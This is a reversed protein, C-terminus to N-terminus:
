FRRTFGIGAGYETWSFADQKALARAAKLEVYPTFGNGIILRTNEAKLSVGVATHDAAGPTTREIDLREVWLSPSLAIGRGADFTGFGTLRMRRYDDVPSDAERNEALLSAGLSLRPTVPRAVTLSARTVHGDRADEDLNDIEHWSGSLKVSMGDPKRTLLTARAGLRDEFASGRLFRRSLSPALTLAARPWILRLGPSTTLTLDDLESGPGDKGDVTVNALALTRVKEGSLSAIEESLGASLNFTLGPATRNSRNLTFPLEQGGISISTTNSDYNRTNGLMAFGIDARWEFGRRAEIAYLFREINSLVPDPIDGSLVSLFESRARGWQESMFYARALELRVRALDPNRALIASFLTAAERPQGSELLQLGREFAEQTTLRQVPQRASMQDAPQQAAQQAITLPVALYTCLMSLVFAAVRRRIM